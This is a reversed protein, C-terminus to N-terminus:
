LDHRSGRKRCAQRVRPRRRSRSTIVRGNAHRGPAPSSACAAGTSGLGSARVARRSRPGVRIDGIGARNQGALAIRGLRENLPDEALTCLDGLSQRSTSTPMVLAARGVDGSRSFTWATIGPVRAISSPVPTHVSPPRRCHSGPRPSPSCWLGNAPRVDGGRPARRSVYTRSASGSIM